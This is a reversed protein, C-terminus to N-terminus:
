SRGLAARLLEATEEPYVMAAREDLLMKMSSADSVHLAPNVFFRPLVRVTLAHTKIGDPGFAAPYFALNFSWLGREAFGRLIRVLSRSFDAIDADSLDAISARGPFVAQADGLLGLPVYPVLWAVNGVSGLWREARKQEEELLDDAFRRGTREHYAAEAALERLVGNGPNTTLVVQMHPHVQSGGSPPMYNWSVMGFGRGGAVWQGTAAFFNRSLMLGDAIAQEPIADMAHFHERCLVAVASIDDYPFLNPVLMAGGQRMRGGALMDEPYRPTVAEIREPCFPCVTRSQEIMPALDPAPLKKLTFHCIRGSTGTLPEYRIESEVEVLKFGVRPDHLRARKKELRFELTM